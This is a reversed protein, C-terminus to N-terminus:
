NRLVSDHSFVRNLRSTIFEPFFKETVDDITGMKLVFEPFFKGTIDDVTGIKVVIQSLSGLFM